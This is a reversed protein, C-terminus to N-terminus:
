NVEPVRCLVFSGDVIEFVAVNINTNKTQIEQM